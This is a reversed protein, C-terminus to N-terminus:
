SFESANYKKLLMSQVFQRCESSLSSREPHILDGFPTDRVFKIEGKFKRGLVADYGTFKVFTTNHETNEFDIVSFIHHQEQKM